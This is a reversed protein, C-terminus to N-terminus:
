EIKLQWFLFLLQDTMDEIYKDTPKGGSHGARTDYHLLIPNGSSSAAQLLATMKRAHLPDVRTDADGTVFLVAPYDVGYEVNHYPSYAYIYKFQEPDDSSGYEPVWWAAVLFKHYRIMDLLPFTCVVAKFLDPRQTLAAGVLLGGNSGGSIALRAPNTYGNDILWEAAAIFDDFTNQKSELMGARHWDEGFEGGGRLAPVAYVGGHRMWVAARSSFRPMIASNFGGYGTLLVPREGDLELDKRHALFMPVSTGDKSHYWVQRTEYEDSEFPVDSRVWVSKSGGSVSYSYITFPIHYSSFSFFAIDDDWRGRVSSVSGLSPFEIEGESNGRADFIEISSIVNHLYNVFVRGGAVSHRDIIAESEPVIEEWSERGPDALDVRILRGNPAEWNTYMFLSHGGLIGEFRAEIDNVIPKIGGGGLLDQYYVETKRAASGHWVTFVLYRGDESLDVGIGKGPGYDSGFVEQDLAPDSGMEHHYVRPGEDLYESYYIGRNGPEFRLNDYRGRPLVDGMDQRAEVDYFRVMIEDEGGTRVGYAFLTGDRAVEELSVSVSQDDSMTNPDILLEDKGQLGERMYIARLNQDAPEKQFFYREGGEVPLSYWDYRIFPILEERIEERGKLQGLVSETYENQADIWARTEESEQDELWRYPDAIAVGHLTDVVGGTRTPPPTTRVDTGCSVALVSICILNFWLSLRRVRLNFVKM